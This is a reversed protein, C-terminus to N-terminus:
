HLLAKQDYFTQRHMLETEQIFNRRLSELRELTLAAQGGGMSEARELTLATQAAAQMGTSSSAVPSLTRQFFFKIQAVGGPVPLRYAYAVFTGIVIVVGAGAATIKAYYRYAPNICVEAIDSKAKNFAKMILEYYSSEKEEEVVTVSTRSALGIKICFVSIVVVAASVWIRILINYSSSNELALANAKQVAATSQSWGADPEFEVSPLLKHRVYVSIFAALFAIGVGALVTLKFRNNAKKSREIQNLDYCLLPSHFGFRSSFFPWHVIACELGREFDLFLKDDIKDVASVLITKSSRWSCRHLDTKIFRNTKRILSM